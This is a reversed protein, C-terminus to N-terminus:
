LESTRASACFLLVSAPYCVTVLYSRKFLINKYLFITHDGKVAKFVGSSTVTFKVERVSIACLLYLECIGLVTVCALTIVQLEPIHMGTYADSSCLPRLELTGTTCWVLALLWCDWMCVM